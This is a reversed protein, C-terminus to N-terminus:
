VKKDNKQNIEIRFAGKESVDYCPINKDQLIKLWRKREYYPM